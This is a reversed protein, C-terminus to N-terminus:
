ESKINFINDIIEEKKENEILTDNKACIYQSFLLM